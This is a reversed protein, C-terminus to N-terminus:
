KNILERMYCFFSIDINLPMIQNAFNNLQEILEDLRKQLLCM